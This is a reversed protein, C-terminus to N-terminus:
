ISLARWIHKTKLTKKFSLKIRDLRNKLIKEELDAVSQATM